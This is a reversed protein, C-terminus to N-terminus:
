TALKNQWNGEVYVFCYSFIFIFLCSSHNLFVILTNSNSQLKALGLFLITQNWTASTFIRTRLHVGTTKEVTERSRSHVMVSVYCVHLFRGHFLRQWMRRTSSQILTTDGNNNKGKIQLLLTSPPSLEHGKVKQKGAVTISPLCSGGYLPAAPRNFSHSDLLRVRSGFRPVPLRFTQDM